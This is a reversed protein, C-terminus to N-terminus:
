KSAASVAIYVLSAVWIGIFLLASHRAVAKTSFHGVPRCNRLIEITGFAAEELGVCVGEWRLTWYEASRLVRYWLLSLIHGALCVGIPIVPQAVGEVTMVKSAIFGFLGANAVLFFQSRTWYITNEYAFYRLMTDYRKLALESGLMEDRDPEMLSVIM